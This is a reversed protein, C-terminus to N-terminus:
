SASAATIKAMAQKAIAVPDPATSTDTGIADLFEFTVLGTGAKVGILVGEFQTSKVSIEEAQDGGVQSTVDQNGSLTIPLTTSSDVIAGDTCSVGQIALDYAHSATAADAYDTYDENFELGGNSAESGVEYAPPVQSQTSPQGCPEPTTPDAKTFQGATFGAGLDSAALMAAQAEDQTLGGAAAAVTTATPAATTGTGAATTESANADSSSNSKSSSSCATLLVVASFGLAAAIRATRHTAM